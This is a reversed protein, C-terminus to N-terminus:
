SEAAAQSESDFPQIPADSHLYTFHANAPADVGFKPWTHLPADVGAKRFRNRALAAQLVPCSARALIRSPREAALSLCAESVMWAYLAPDPRPAFVEVLSGQLGTKGAYLRTMAWGRLRGDLTFAHFSWRGSWRSAALWRLVAPDPQQVLGYGTDGEYLAEVGPPLAASVTVAGRGPAPLRRPGFLPGALPAFAALALARPVRRARSLRDALLGASLPLEYALASGTAQWGMLPLTSHVDATGGVSFIREPQKMMARMLRIGAGSGRVEALSHWDFVELCPVLDGRVRWTKRLAFLTGVCEEGRMALFMRSFPLPDLYRWAYYAETRPRSWYSESFARLPPLLGAEFPVITTKPATEIM